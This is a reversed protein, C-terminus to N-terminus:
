VGPLPGFYFAMQIGLVVQVLTLVLVSPNAVLVLFLPLADVPQNYGLRAARTRWQTLAIGGVAVVGLILSFLDAQTVTARHIKSKLMTRLMM